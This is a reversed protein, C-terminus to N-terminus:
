LIDISLKVVIERPRLITMSYSELAESVVNQRLSSTDFMNTVTVGLEWRKQKFSVAVDCFYNPRTRENNSHYLNNKLSIMWQKIPFVNINLSHEWNAIDKSSSLSPTSLNRQRLFTVLSKGEISLPRWPCLSYDFMLVSTKVRADNEEDKVLLCYNTVNHVVGVGLYLNAWSFSKAVRASLGYSNINHKRESEVSMLINDELSSMYLRKGTTFNYYPRINFFLGHLPERYQYSCSVSLRSQADNKGQHISMSRYDTYVSFNYIDRLMMPVHNYNASTVFESRNNVQWFWSFSPEVWFRYDHNGRYSRQVYKLRVAGNFRHMGYNLSVAPTYYEQLLHFNAVTEIDQGLSCNMNQYDYDVGFANNLYLRGIRKRFKLETYSSLFQMGLDELQHHATLLKGPLTLYNLLSNIEYTYGKSTTHYLNFEDTLSQKQPKVMLETLNDNYNISGISKSFDVYGRLNNKVYTHSGNFQYDFNGRWQSLSNDVNQQEVVIPHGPISLYTTSYSSQMNTKDLFGSFQLRMNTDKGLNWLWNGAMLHSHNFTYRNNSLSPTSVSMLSLLGQENELNNLSTRMSLSSLEKSVDSGINNNKYITLTQSKKGFCMGMLRNDYLFDNGYGLGIDASASWVDKVDDELVLNLAAQDSFSIGRLSKVPQHRQLVQVTRIKDASINKNAVGYQNGMLDLGEIYFKNIAKGQYFIQGSTSVEMGPMKAIVDAISRDQGQRFAAVSYTLTDGQSRIKTGNVKVEKLLFKGKTLKILIGNKLKSFPLVYTQFGMFSATVNVPKKGQPIELSFCGEEGAIAYCVIHKASDRVLVNAGELGEKSADVIRGSICQQAFTASSILLFFICLSIKWSYHQRQNM